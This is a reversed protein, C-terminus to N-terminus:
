VGQKLLAHLVKDRTVPQSYYMGQAQDCGNSIALNHQQRNSVGQAVVKRDLKHALTTITEILHVDGHDAHRIELLHPHLKLGHLPIQQLRQLSIEGLGFNDVVLRVGAATLERLEALCPSQKDVLLQEQFELELAGKLVSFEETKQKVKAAFAPHHLSELTVNLSVSMQKCVGQEQWYQLAHAISDLGLCELEMLLDSGQALPFFEEPMLLGREPHMWCLLGEYGVVTAQPLDHLAQFLMCFQNEQLAQRLLTTELQRQELRQSGTQGAYFRYANRGSEKAEYLAVDACKVVEDKNQSDDPYLSIGISTSVALTHSNLEFPRTISAIIKRAVTAAGDKNIIDELIFVFEDGGLRAVTDAIRCLNQLRRAVEILLEDGVDHGLTDNITKFRDLDLFLVAVKGSNRKAKDISHNLRDKFLLRNPLGTLTDHHALRYLRSQSERLEEEVRLRDTVDRAVEIVGYLQGQRDLLPSVDLEFTNNVGNGHYQNHLLKIQIGHQGMAQIPCPYADNTCPQKRGCLLEYCKRGQMSSAPIAKQALKAAAQNALLVNYSTDIAIVPDGASDIVTQLFTRENSVADHLQQQISAMAQERRKQLTINQHTGTMRVPQGKEDREVVRGRDLFWEWEGSDSKVRYEIRYEESNGELHDNLISLVRERDDPHIFRQEAVTGGSLRGNENRYDLHRKHNPSTYMEGTKINWDWLGAQSAYLALEYREEMLFLHEERQRAAEESVLKRLASGLAEGIERYLTFVHEDVVTVTPQIIFFGNLTENCHISVCISAEEHPPMMSCFRCGEKQCQLSMSDLKGFIQSGCWPLEGAKLAEMISPFHEQLGCEATVMGGSEFDVLVVLAWLHQNDSVFRDCVGQLLSPLDRESILFRCIDYSIRLIDSSSCTTIENQAM